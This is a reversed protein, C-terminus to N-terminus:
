GPLSTQTTKEEKTVPRALGATMTLSVILYQWSLVQKKNKKQKTVESPLFVDEM